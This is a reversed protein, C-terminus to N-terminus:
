NPRWRRLAREVAGATLDDPQSWYQRARNLKFTQREVLQHEQERTRSSEALLQAYRVTDVIASKIREHTLYSVLDSKWGHSCEAPMAELWGDLITEEEDPQYSMKHFHVALDYLPDGWLALEWDLFVTRGDSLIMNKRHVDAHVLGFPRSALTPWLALAPELPDPPIGVDAFLPGFSGCFRRYVSATVDSLQRAFTPTDSDAAWGSPVDPLRAAPVVSLKQFLNVIDGLVHDPVRVGRPATADLLEGEIFEHVQFAPRDSIHLVRPVNSVYPAIASLVDVEPWIRLDMTDAGAIPIRVNVPGDSTDVRINHNYFGAAADTRALATHYLVTPEM